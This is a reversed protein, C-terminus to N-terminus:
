SPMRGSQFAAFGRPTMEGAAIQREAIERNKPTWNSRPRRPTWRQKYREDDIRRVLGDIWGYKVAVEVAEGYPISEKGTSKKWYVLWIEAATEHNAALWADWADRDVAVIETV